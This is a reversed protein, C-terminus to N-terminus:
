VTRMKAFSLCHRRLTKITEFLSIVKQQEREYQAIKSLVVVAENEIALFTEHWAKYYDCGSNAITRLNKNANKQSIQVKKNYFHKYIIYMKIIAGEFDQREIRSKASQLNNTM